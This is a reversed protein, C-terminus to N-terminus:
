NSSGPMFIKLEYGSLTLGIEADGSVESNFSFNDLAYDAIDSSLYPDIKRAREVVNAIDIPRLRFRFLGGPCGSELNDTNCTFTDGSVRVGFAPDKRFLTSVIPKGGFDLGTFDAQSEGSVTGIAIYIKRASKTDVIEIVPHAVAHGGARRLLTKVKLTFVLELDLEFRGKWPMVRLDAAAPDTPPRTSFKFTPNVSTAQVDSSKLDRSNVYIGFGPNGYPSKFFLQFFSHSDVEYYDTLTQATHVDSVDSFGGTRRTFPQIYRAPQAAGPIIRLMPAQQNVAVCGGLPGSEDECMASEVIRDANMKYTTIPSETWSLACFGIGEDIWGDAELKTKLSRDPSYRHATDGFAARNNYYRYVPIPSMTPCVGNVPPDAKFAVREFIWGTGPEKLLSCEFANSNFFHSNVSPAYFRCIDVLQNIYPGNYEAPLMSLILGTRRWGSRARGRDVIDLEIPDNLLVRRLTNENVYEYVNIGLTSGDCVAGDGYPPIKYGGVCFATCLPAIFVVSAALVAQMYIRRVTKKTIEM